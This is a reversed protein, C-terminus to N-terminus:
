IWEYTGDERVLVETGKQNDILMNYVWIDVRAENLKEDCLPCNWSRTAQHTAILTRLCICNFHMCYKGRIPIKVRERTYPCM